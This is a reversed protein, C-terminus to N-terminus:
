VCEIEKQILTQCIDSSDVLNRQIFEEDVVDVIALIKWQFYQVMTMSQVWPISYDWKPFYALFQM